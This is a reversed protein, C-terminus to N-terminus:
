LLKIIKIVHLLEHDRAFFIFFFSNFSPELEM